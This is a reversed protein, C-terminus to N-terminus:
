RGRQQAAVVAGAVQVQLVGVGRLHVRGTLWPKYQQFCKLRPNQRMGSEVAKLQVATHQCTCGVIAVKSQTCALDHEQPGELALLPRLRHPVRDPDVRGTLECSPLTQKATTCKTRSPVCHPDVCGTLTSAKHHPATWSIQQKTATPRPTSQHPWHTSATNPICATGCSGRHNVLPHRTPQRLWPSWRLWPTSSAERHMRTVGEMAAAAM